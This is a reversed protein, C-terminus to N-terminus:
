TLLCEALSHSVAAFGVRWTTGFLALPATLCFIRRVAPLSALTHVHVPSSKGLLSAHCATCSMVQAGVELSTVKTVLTQVGAIIQAM